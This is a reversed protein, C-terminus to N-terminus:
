LPTIAFIRFPATEGERPRRTQGPVQSKIEVFFQYISGFTDKDKTELGCKREFVGARLQHEHELVIMETFFAVRRKCASSKQLLLFPRQAAPFIRGSFWDTWLINKTYKRCSKTM